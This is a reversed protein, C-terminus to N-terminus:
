GGVTKLRPISLSKTNSSVSRKGGDRSAHPAISLLLLMVFGGNSLLATHIPGNSIVNAFPVLLCGVFIPDRDRTLSDAIWLVLMLQLCAFLMGVYGLNVYGDALFNANANNEKAYTSIYDGILRGFPMDFPSSLLRSLFSDAYLLLPKDHFFDLYSATLYGNNLFMRFTSYWSLIPHEAFLADLVTTAINYFLVITLAVLFLRHQPGKWFRGFVTIVVAFTAAIVVSFFVTKQSSVAFAVFAVALGAAILLPNKRRIGWLALFPAVAVGMWNSLYVNFRALADTQVAERIALRQDYVDLFDVNDTSIQGSLFFYIPGCAGIGILAAWALVRVLKKEPFMLPGLYRVTSILFFCFVLFLANFIPMPMSPYIMIYMISPLLLSFYLYVYVVDSPRGTPRLWVIPVLAILNGLLLEEFVDRVDVVPLWLVSVYPSNAMLNQYIAFFLWYGACILLILKGTDARRM